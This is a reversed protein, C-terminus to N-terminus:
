GWTGTETARALREARQGVDRNWQGETRLDHAAAAWDGRAFHGLTTPWHELKYLGVNYAINVLVDQRVPALHAFWPEDHDLRTELEYVRKRLEADAQTLTWQTGPGVGPGTCGYGITWPDGGSKPDPYAVLECGEDIKLRVLGAPTV